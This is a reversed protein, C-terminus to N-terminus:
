KESQHPDLDSKRVKMSEYPDPDQEEHFHHLSRRRRAYLGEVTGNQAEVGGTHADEARRPGM